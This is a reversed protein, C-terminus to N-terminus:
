EVVRDYTKEFIDPKCPYIEGKVGEIIWDGPCVIHGGELTEVWGHLSYIKGCKKCKEDPNIVINTVTGVYDEIPLSSAKSPFWQEAEVVVPKKRYSKM